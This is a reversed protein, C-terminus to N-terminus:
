PKGHTFLDLKQEGVDAGDAALRVGLEKSVRGLLDSVAMRSVRVTLPVQLRADAKFPAAPGERSAGAEAGRALRLGTLLSFLALIVAARGAAHTGHILTRIRSVQNGERARTGAYPSKTM